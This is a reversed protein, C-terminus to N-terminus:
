AALVQEFLKEIREARRQWSYDGAAEFAARALRRALAPEEILTRIAAAIAAADGPAVLLANEGHTLVERISPLDSAIIARGAAMYEFLKLPSTFKTSIASAPNPLVLIAARALHEAVRSPEVLGTFTVRDAVRLESARRRVRDLDPEGPHGGVILGKVGPLLALAELLVDVGKWAYLHGAYAVLTGEPAADPSQPPLRVGDPIVALRSRAGYRGTLEDALSQTIAIYGDATKWVSEERRALRQVKAGGPPAATAVLQPLAV